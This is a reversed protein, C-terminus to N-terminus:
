RVLAREIERVCGAVGGEARVLEGVEAARAVVYPALATELAARLRPHSAEPTPVPASGVGIEHVRRAFFPQDMTFPLVVQPRGARLAQATTGAGGHHVVAATRPFLLEHAVDGVFHVREDSRAEAKDELGSGRMVVVRRGLELAAAVTHRLAERVAPVTHSGLGVYVPATGAQLFQETEIPLATGEPVDLFPYGACRVQRGGIRRPTVIQPSNAVFAPGTMMRLLARARELRTPTAAGEDALRDAGPAVMRVSARMSGLGAVLNRLSAGQRVGYMSTDGHISALAPVFM